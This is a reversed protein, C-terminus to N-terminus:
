LTGGQKASRGSRVQGVVTRSGNIRSRPRVTGVWDACVEFGARRRLRGDRTTCRFININMDIARGSRM